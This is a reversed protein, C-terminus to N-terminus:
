FPNKGGRVEFHLHNGTSKGTSGVYGIIQGQVVQQGQSVIIRTQHAYLTQTGNGHNIVVYDGYGGNWGGSRSVIVVGGAAARIPTGSPAGFDTANLGHMGQTRVSGPVPHIFYGSGGGTSAGSTGKGSGGSRGNKAKPEEQKEGGPITITMGVALDEESVLDNFALTETLDGGYRKVISSLTEGKVVTHQVGDIPLILLTQGPRIDKSSSLSNAWVITNVSVGFMDAIQSLSDGDQVMYLSIRDSGVTEARVGEVGPLSTDAVLASGDVIRVEGGGRSSNPDINRAARLLPISQLTISRDSVMEVSANDTDRDFLVFVGGAATAIPACVTVAVGAVSVFRVLTRQM